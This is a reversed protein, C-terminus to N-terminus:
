WNPPGPGRVVLYGIAMLTVTAISITLMLKGTMFSKAQEAEKDLLLTLIEPTESLSQDKSSLRQEKDFSM